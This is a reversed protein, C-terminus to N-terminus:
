FDCNMLEPLIEFADGVMGYDAINFIPANADTNIAIIKDSKDMGITHQIAGSIGCAIYLKPTVTKGTQGVQIEHSALGMEVALRSAGVAAGIKDAFEKLLQFGEANKMGRGGAVIIEASDLENLSETLKKKFELIEVKETYRDLNPTQKIIEAPKVNNIDAPKFVKPRVTAMQPLNKCLITAMLQGGFTPRTAALQGRENIDLGTCDATLGTHLATSIRPALDRGQNTAGILLIDPQIEKILEVASKTSYDSFKENEIAFIKDIGSNVFAERYEDALGPKSILLANVEANDLKAALENAKNALEFFVTHIYNDRTVEAYILIQKTM